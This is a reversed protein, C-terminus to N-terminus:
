QLVPRGRVLHREGRAAPRRDLRGERRRAREIGFWSPNAGAVARYQGQTVQHIGMYFPRSIRVEHAPHEDTDGEGEASGMTFAGAPILVLKIGISDVISRAPEGTRPRAVDATPAPPAAVLPSPACRRPERHSKSRYRLRLPLGYERSPRGHSATSRKSARKQTRLRPRSRAPVRARSPRGILRPRRNREQNTEDPVSRELQPRSLRRSSSDDSVMIGAVVSTLCVGGAALLVGRLTWLPACPQRVIEGRNPRINGPDSDGATPSVGGAM